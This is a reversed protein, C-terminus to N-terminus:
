KDFRKDGLLKKITKFGPVGAEAKAEIEEWTMTGIENWSPSGPELPANKVSGKKGTLIEGVTKGAHKHAM